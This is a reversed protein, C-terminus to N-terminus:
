WMWMTPATACAVCATCAIFWTLGWALAIISMVIGATAMGATNGQKKAMYGLVVGVIAIIQPVVPIWFFAVALVLSVIGLILSATAMGSAPQQGGPPMGPMPPMGPPTGGPQNPFQSM